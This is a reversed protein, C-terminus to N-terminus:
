CLHRSVNQSQSVCTSNILSNTSQLKTELSISQNNRWREQELFYQQRFFVPWPRSRRSKAPLRAEDEGACAIEVEVCIRVVPKMAEAYSVRIWSQVTSRILIGLWRGPWGQDWFRARCSAAPPYHPTKPVIGDHTLFYGAKVVQM